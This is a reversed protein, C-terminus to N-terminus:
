GLVRAAARLDAALALPTPLRLAHALPAAPLPVVLEAVARADTGGDPRPAYTMTLTARVWWWEGVEVWRHPPESEVVRMRPRVGPVLTVDTWTTGVDGPAGGAEVVADVRRLSSQWAPRNDPDALYAHVAAAPADVPVTVDAVRVTVTRM